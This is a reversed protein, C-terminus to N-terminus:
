NKAFNYGNKTSNKIKYLANDASEYISTYKTGNEPYSAIGISCYIELDNLNKILENIKEILYSKDKFNVLFLAFEDGGLRGFFDTSRFINTITDAVEILVKDGYLHGKTDNIKKFDDIDLAMMYHTNENRDSIDLLRVVSNEFGRRNLLGTLPDKHSLENLRLNEKKIEDIDIIRGVVRDINGEHDYISTLMIRVWFLKSGVTNDLKTLRVEIRIEGRKQEIFEKLAFSFRKQDDPDMNYFHGSLFDAEPSLTTGFMALWNKHHSFYLFKKDHISYEFIVEDTQDLVIQYRHDGRRLRDFALYKETNDFAMAYLLHSNDGNGSVSIKFPTTIYLVKDLHEIQYEVIGEMKGSTVADRIVSDVKKRDEKVITHLFSNETQTIFHDRNVFGFLDIFTDTTLIFSLNVDLLCIFLGGPTNSILQDLERNLRDLESTHTNFNDMMRNFSEVVPGFESVREKPIRYSYNKKRVHGMGVLLNEIPEGLAKSTLNLAFYIGIVLIILILTFAPAATIIPVLLEKREFASFVSWDLDNHYTYTGYYRKGDVKFKVIPTETQEKTSNAMETRVVEVLQGNEGNTSYILSHNHNFVLHVTSNFYKHETALAELSQPNYLAVFSGQYGQNSFIPSFICVYPCSENYIKNKHFNPLLISKRSINRQLSSFDIEHGHRELKVYKALISNNSDILYIEELGKSSIVELNLRVELSEVLEEHPITLYGTDSIIAQTLQLNSLSVLRDYENYLRNQIRTELLSNNYKLNKLVFPQYHTKFIIFFVVVMILIISISLITITNRLRKIFNM